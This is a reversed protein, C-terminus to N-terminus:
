GVIVGGIPVRKSKKQKPCHRGHKRSPCSKEKCNKWRCHISAM